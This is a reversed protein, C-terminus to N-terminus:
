KSNLCYREAERRTEDVPTIRNTLLWAIVEGREFYVRGGNPKYHPIRKSHTLVYLYSKSLGTMKAVEDVTLIEKGVTGPDGGM